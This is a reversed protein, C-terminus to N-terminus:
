FVIRGLWRIYYNRCCKLISRSTKEDQVCVCMNFLFTTTKKSINNSTHFGTGYQQVTKNMIKEWEPLAVQVLGVHKKSRSTSYLFGPSSFSPSVKWEKNFLQNALGDFQIRLEDSALKDRYIRSAEYGLAKTISFYM